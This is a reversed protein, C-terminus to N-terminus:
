VAFLITYGQVSDLDTILFIGIDVYPVPSNCSTAHVEFGASIDQQYTM